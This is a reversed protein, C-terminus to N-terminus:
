RTHVTGGTRNTNQNWIQMQFADTVAIIRNQFHQQAGYARVTTLGLLLAGFNSMLPSLPVMELRRLSQSTPLFRLFILVFGATLALSFVLFLPTVSAIVVGSSIWVISLRAVNQIQNSINGDVTSCDSTLRNMLRGVPTIDYYQFTAHSVWDMVKKFMDCGSFIIVLM